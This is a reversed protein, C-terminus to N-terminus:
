QQTIGARRDDGRHITVTRKFIRRCSQRVLRISLRSDGNIITSAGSKAFKHLTVSIVEFIPLLSSSRPHGCLAGALTFHLLAGNTDLGARLAPFICCGSSLPVRCCRSSTEPTILNGLLDPGRAAQALPRDAAM